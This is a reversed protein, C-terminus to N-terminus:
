SVIPQDIDKAKIFQKAEALAQFINVQTKEEQKTFGLIDAKLQFLRARTNETKAQDIERQLEVLFDEKSIKVKQILEKQRYDIYARIQPLASIRKGAGYANKYGATACASTWNHSKLYEECAIHAKHNAPKKISYNPSPANEKQAIDQPTDIDVPTQDSM